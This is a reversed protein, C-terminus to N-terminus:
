QETRPTQITIQNWVHLLKLVNSYGTGLRIAQQARVTTCNSSSALSPVWVGLATCPVKLEVLSSDKKKQPRGFFLGQHFQKLKSRKASVNSQIGIGIDSRAIGSSAASTWLAADPESWTSGQCLQPRPAAAAPGSSPSGGRWRPTRSRWSVSRKSGPVLVCGRSRARQESGGVPSGSARTKM